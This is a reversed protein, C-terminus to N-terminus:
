NCLFPSLLAVICVACTDITYFTYCTSYSTPALLGLPLWYIFIFFTRLCEFSLWANLLGVTYFDEHLFRWVLWQKLWGVRTEDSKRRNVKDLSSVFWYDEHFSLLLWWLLTLVFYFYVIRFTSCCWVWFLLFIYFLSVTLGNWHYFFVCVMICFLLVGLRFCIGELWTVRAIITSCDHM